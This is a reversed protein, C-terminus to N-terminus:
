KESENQVDLVIFLYGLQDVVHGNRLFPVHLNAGIAIFREIFERAIIVLIQKQNIVINGSETTQLQYLAGALYPV